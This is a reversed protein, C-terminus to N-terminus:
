ASHEAISLEVLTWSKDLYHLSLPVLTQHHEGNRKQVLCWDCRDSDMYSQALAVADVKRYETESDGFQNHNIDYATVYWCDHEKSHHVLTYQWRRINGLMEDLLEACERKDITATGEIYRLCEDGLEDREIAYARWVQAVGQMAEYDPLITYTM